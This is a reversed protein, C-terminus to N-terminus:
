VGGRQRKGLFLCSSDTNQEPDLTISDQTLMM